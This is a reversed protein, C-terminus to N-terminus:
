SERINFRAFRRVTINEQLKSISEAVLEQVTRGPERFYDQEMLCNHKLFDEVQGEVIRPVVQEPKGDQLAKAEFVEREKVLVEDPVDERTVWRPELAAVQLALEKALKRFDPGKAVFDTECNVEILVGVQPPFDPSPSHLYAEVVGQGTARGARKSAKAIGKERLITYAKDVDGGAEELAQKCDSFGAGSLERLKKVLDMSVAMM